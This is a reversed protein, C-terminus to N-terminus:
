NEPAGKDIWAAIRYAQADSLRMEPQFSPMPLAGVSVGFLTSYTSGGQSESAVVRYNGGLFASQVGYVDSYNQFSIGGNIGGAPNNAHCACGSLADRQISAWTDFSEIGSEALCGGLGFLLLAMLAVWRGGSIGVRSADM